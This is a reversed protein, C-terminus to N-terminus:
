INYTWVTPQLYSYMSCPLDPLAGRHMHRWVKIHLLIFLPWILLFRMSYAYAARGGLLTCSCRVISYLVQYWRVQVKYKYRTRRIASTSPELLASKSSEAVYMSMQHIQHWWFLTDCNTVMDGNRRAILLIWPNFRVLKHGSIHRRHMCWTNCPEWRYVSNNSEGWEGNSSVGADWVCGVDQWRRM